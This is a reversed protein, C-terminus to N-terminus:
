YQNAVPVFVIRAASSNGDFLLIPGGSFDTIRFVSDTNTPYLGSLTCNCYVPTSINALGEITTISGAKSNGVFVKQNDRSIGLADPSSIGDQMRAIVSVQGNSVSLIENRADDAVIAGDSKLLFQIASPHNTSTVLQPAQSPKLLFISGNTGDSTGLLVSKGDDAIALATLPGLGSVDFNGAALPSQSLNVFSYIRADSESFFAAASGAPSIAIRNINSVGEFARVVPTRDRLELRIPWPTEATTALIYDQDPPIASQLVSFGFDLPSGVTASRAIGILPRLAGASDTTFTLVPPAVRAPVQAAAVSACFALCILSTRFIKFM